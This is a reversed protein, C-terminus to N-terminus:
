TKDVTKVVPKRFSGFNSNTVVNTTSAPAVEVSRPLKTNNGRGQALEGDDDQTGVCLMASLAYRRAYSIASGASQPKQDVCIVETDATLFEGSTHLILTRVYTKGDVTVTPQFLGLGNDHLAPLTAERVSNLDSYSSKFFPNNADKKALAMESQAKILAPALKVISDSMKM